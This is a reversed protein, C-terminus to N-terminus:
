RDNEERKESGTGGEDKDSREKKKSKSLLAFALFFFFISLIFFSIAGLQRQYLYYLAAISAVAVATLYFQRM